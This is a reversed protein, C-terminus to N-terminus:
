GGPNQCALAAGMTLTESDRQIRRHTLLHLRPWGNPRWWLDPAAPAKGRSWQGLQPPPPPRTQAPRPPLPLQSVRPVQHGALSEVLHVRRVAVFSDM